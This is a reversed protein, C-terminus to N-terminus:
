QRHGLLGTPRFLLFVILLIFSVSDKYIGPVVMTSLSEVVGILIGGLIGGPLYGFGGVVGAAFGKLGILGTMDGSVKYLPIILLGITACIIASVGMTLASSKNVDIGMLAAATKNQSVCRMATGSKTRNLFFQLGVVLLLSVFIIVVHAKTIVLGNFKYIGTLWGPVPIQNVGWVLRIFETIIRGTMITGILAYILPLHRLPKFLGNAVLVGFFYMLVVSLMLAIVFPPGLDVGILAAFTYAGLIIFREHAFNLLGSANWVLTYEVSVLAYIFGLATGSILLQLFIQLM